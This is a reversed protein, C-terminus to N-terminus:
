IPADEVKRGIVLVLLSLVKPAELRVLLLIRTSTSKKKKEEEEEEEEKQQEEQVQSQSQPGNPTEEASSAHGEASSPEEAHSSKYHLHPETHIASRPINQLAFRCVTALSRAEPSIGLKMAAREM